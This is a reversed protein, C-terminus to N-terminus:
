VTLAADCASCLSGSHRIKLHVVSDVCTAIVRGTCADSVHAIAASAAAASQPQLLPVHRLYPRAEASAAQLSLLLTASVESAAARCPVAVMTADSRDQAEAGCLRAPAARLQESDVASKSECSACAKQSAATGYGPSCGSFYASRRTIATKACSLTQGTTSATCSSWACWRTTSQESELGHELQAASESKSMLSDVSNRRDAHLACSALEDVPGRRCQCHYDRFRLAARELSGCTRQAGGM